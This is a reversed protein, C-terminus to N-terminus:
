HNIQCCIATFLALWGGDMWWASLPINTSSLLNYAATESAVALVADGLLIPSWV